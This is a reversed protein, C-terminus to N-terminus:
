YNDNAKAEKAELLALLRSEKIRSEEVLKEVKLTLDHIVTETSNRKEVVNRKPIRIFWRQANENWYLHQPRYYSKGLGEEFELPLRLSGVTWMIESAKRVDAYSDSMMAILLNLLVITCLIIYTAYVIEVMAESKNFKEFESGDTEFDSMGVMWNFVFFISESGTLKLSPITQVLASYAFSFALLIFLYILGFRLMDRFLIHKLIISFHHVQKFGRTFNIAFVWGFIYSIALIYDQSAMCYRNMVYFTIAFTSYIFGCFQLIITGLLYESQNRANQFAHTIGNRKCSFITKVALAGDYVILCIPWILCLALAVELNWTRVYLEAAPTTTNQEAFSGVCKLSEIGFYSYLAMILIHLFFSAAFLKQYANWYSDVINKFPSADLIAAVDGYAEVKVLLEAVSASNAVSEANNGECDKSDSSPSVASLKKINEKDRPSEHTSTFPLLDSVDYLISDDQHSTFKFVDAINLIYILMDTAALKAAYQTVNYGESQHVNTLLHLLAEKRYVKYDDAQESPLSKKTIRCWWHICNNCISEFVKMYNLENERNQSILFAIEHLVSRGSSNPQVLNAGQKILMAAMSPHGHRAALHLPTEGSGDHLNLDISRGVVSFTKILKTMTEYDGNGIAIHLPSAGNVDLVNPSLHHLEDIIAFNGALVAAHLASRQHIDKVHVVTWDHHLIMQTILVKTHKVLVGTTRTALHLATQNHTNTQSLDSLPLLLAIAENCAYECAIHLATYGRIDQTRCLFETSFKSLTEIQNHKAAVHIFTSQDSDVAFTDLNMDILFQIIDNDGISAAAHLPTIGPPLILKQPSATRPRHSLHSVITTTIGEQRDTDSNNNPALEDPSTVHDVLTMLLKANKQELAFDWVTKGDHNRHNFSSGVKALFVVVLHQGHSAALLLADNGKDDVADIAAGADLLLVAIDLHGEVAAFHLATHGSKMTTNVDANHEILLKVIDTFGMASAAIIPCVLGLRRKINVNIDKSETLLVRVVETHGNRCAWHLASSGKDNQGNVNAGARILLQVTFYKNDNAAWLIPLDGKDNALDVPMQCENIFYKVLENNGCKAAIHLCALPRPRQGEPVIVTTMYLLKAKLEQDTLSALILKVAAVHGKETAVHLVSIKSKKGGVMVQQCKCVYKDSFVTLLYQLLEMNVSSYSLARHILTEDSKSQVLKEVDGKNRMVKDLSSKLDALNVCDVANFCEAIAQEYDIVEKRSEDKLVTVKELVATKRKKNDIFKQVTKTMLKEQEETVEKQKNRRMVLLAKFDGDLSDANSTFDEM